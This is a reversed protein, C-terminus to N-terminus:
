TIKQELSILPFITKVLPPISLREATAMDRSPFRQSRRQRRRPAPTQGAHRRLCAPQNTRCREHRSAKGQPQAGQIQPRRHQFFSHPERGSREIWEKLEAETPRNDVIHRDEFEVGNNLLWQRAKQCTSCKPYELFLYKM